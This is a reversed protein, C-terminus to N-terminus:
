AENGHLVYELEKILSLGWTIGVFPFHALISLSMCAIFDWLEEFFVDLRVSYFGSHVPSSPCNKRQKKLSLCCPIHVTQTVQTGEKGWYTNTQIIKGRMCVNDGWRDLNLFHDKQLYLKLM